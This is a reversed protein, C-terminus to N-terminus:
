MSDFFFYGSPLKQSNGQLASHNDGSDSHQSRDSDTSLRDPLGDLTPLAADAGNGGEIGGFEAAADGALDLTEIRGVVDFFFFDLFHPAEDLEGDRRRIEGHLAGAQFYGGLICFEGADIDAASDASEFHDLAFVLDQEFFAGAADGRKENGRGDDIQGGAVNGDSGAGLTRVRSGGRGASAARVGDAIGEAQDLPAIGVRHDAAAGLGGDGGHADAPEGGHARKGMAVVLRFPGRPGPIAIAVSEHGSFAGADQDQFLIFAGHPTARRHQGFDHAVAHAAVGIWM